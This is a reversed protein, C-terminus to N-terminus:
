GRKLDELIRHLAEDSVEFASQMRALLETEEAAADGDGVCLKTALRLITLRDEMSDTAAAIASLRASVGQSVVRDLIGGIMGELRGETLAATSPFMGLLGRLTERESDPFTGDVALMIVLSEVLAEMGPGSGTSFGADSVGMGFGERVLVGFGFGIEIGVGIEVLGRFGNQM